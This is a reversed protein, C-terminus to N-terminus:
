LYNLILKISAQAVICRRIRPLSFFISSPFFLVVPNRREKAPSGHLGIARSVRRKWYKEDVSLDIPWRSNTTTRRRFAGLYRLSIQPWGPGVVYCCGAFRNTQFNEGDALSFSLVSLQVRSSAKGLFFRQITENNVDIEM